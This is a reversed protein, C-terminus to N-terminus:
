RETKTAQLIRPIGAYDRWFRHDQFHPNQATERELLEEQGYGIELLLFGGPKLFPPAERLIRRIIDTGELGGGRLAGAPEYDRIEPPLHPFEREGVYPPNSLIGDFFPRHSKLASFLDMAVPFVRQQLGHRWANRRAVQLAPWSRDSAVVRLGPNEHALAVAVAGSGTGLDLLRAPRDKLIELAKEVLLETEPRPILVAPTVELELSWFEQRGTIYQTPERRGRRRVMERYLSLEQSTLPKDYHLYLELREMHLVHALLVEANARPQDIGKRVFYESTWQIVRLITWTEGM